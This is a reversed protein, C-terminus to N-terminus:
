TSGAIDEDVDSEEEIVFEPFMEVLACSKEQRIDPLSNNRQEKLQELRASIMKPLDWDNAGIEIGIVNCVQALDVPSGGKLETLAKAFMLADLPDKAYTEELLKLYDNPKFSYFVCYAAMRHYLKLVHLCRILKDPVFAELFIRAAIGVDFQMMYDGLEQTITLKDDEILGALFHLNREPDESMMMEALGLSESKSLKESSQLIVSFYPHLAKAGLRKFLSFVEETRLWGNKNQAVRKAASVYNGKQADEFVTVLEATKEQTEGLLPLMEKELLRTFMQCFHTEDPNKKFESILLQLLRDGSNQELNSLFCPKSLSFNMMSNALLSLKNPVAGIPIGSASVSELVTYYLEDSPQTQYRGYLDLRIYGGIAMYPSISFTFTEHENIVPFVESKWHYDEPSFGISIQISRPAYIPQGLQYSARYPRISISFVACIPQCLQYILSENTEPNENGVSSWFTHELGDLTQKITQKKHDTSSAELGEKILPFSLAGNSTLDLSALESYLTKWNDKLPILQDSYLQTVKPKALLAKWLSRDQSIQYWAKCVRSATCLSKADLFSFVHLLIEMSFVEMNHEQQSKLCWNTGQVKSLERNTNNSECNETNFTNNCDNGQGNSFLFRFM